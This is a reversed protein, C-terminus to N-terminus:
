PEAGVSGELVAALVIPIRDILDSAILGAPALAAAEAHIQTAASAADLPALGRALLGLILGALVDGTGATALAASGSTLVRVPEDSAGILTTPGKRVVVDGTAEAFSRVAETRDPDTSGGLRAWEGEHPTLVTPFTRRSVAKVIEPQLADGDVILPCEITLVDGISALHGPGLGPGVLVARLRDVGTIAESGWAAGPLPYGVAETPGADGIGGPVALQVLGAGARQAARAALCPAGTMSPSGGIVRVASRWKHDDAPRATLVAALDSPELAEARPQGTDLGIDVLTVEGALSRGPELVLGPKLAAFTVTRDARAPRGVVGGTLGDVGSPIDVALVATGEDVSPFSFPRALGTGFAADIVLDVGDIRGPLGASVDYVRCRVGCRELHRSAMRGDAGNNGPGAVVAVRRGYSGGMMEVAVRAVARAARDILVETPEVAAEDVANMEEPTVIPIM